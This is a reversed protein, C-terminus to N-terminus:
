IYGNFSLSIFSFLYFLVLDTYFLVWGLNNELYRSKKKLMKPIIFTVWTPVILPVTNLGKVYGILIIVLLVVSGVYLFKRANEYGMVVPLTRIGFKKDGSIDNFDKTTQFFFVYVMTLFAYFVIKQDIVSFILSVFVYPLFGRSIAQLLNNLIYFRKIRPPITYILGLVIMLISLLFAYVSLLLSISIALIYLVVAFEIGYKPRPRYKKNNLMDIKIEEHYCLNVVQSGGQIFMFVLGTLIMNVRDVPVSLYVCMLYYIIVGIVFASFSTLPRMADLYERIKFIPKKSDKITYKPRIKKM